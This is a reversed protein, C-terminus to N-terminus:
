LVGFLKFAALASLIGIVLGGLVDRPTHGLAYHVPSLKLKQMRIIKNIARGEEGSTRRVGLADTIIIISLVITHMFLNSAGEDLLVATALASILATHTSPFEGTVFIDWLHINKKKARYLILFKLGQSIVGAFIIAFLVHQAAPSFLEAM